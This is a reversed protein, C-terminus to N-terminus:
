YYLIRDNEQIELQKNYCKLLEERSSKKIWFILWIGDRGTYDIRIYIEQSKNVYIFLPPPFLRLLRSPWKFSAM